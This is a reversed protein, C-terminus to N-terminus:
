FMAGKLGNLCVSTNEREFDKGSQYDSYIRSKPVGYETLAIIHRDDNQSLLSVWAYGILNKDM